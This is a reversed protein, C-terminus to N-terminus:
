CTPACIWSNGEERLFEKLREGVDESKMLSTGVLVADYGIDKVKLIDDRTDIGSESVKVEYDKIYNYLNVSVDLDVELTELSRNNVGIIKIDLGNIKDLDEKDHVEVLVDLDLKCALKLFEEIKDRRLAKAIILFASAKNLKAEYIQYEDIIFDKCLCPIDTNQSIDNLYSLKGGFYKYDTLVSIASVGMRDYIDAIKIIDEEKLLVGESPSKTKIEAIINIFGKKKLAEKFSIKNLKDMASVKDILDSLPMKEKRKSIENIKTDIIENLINM